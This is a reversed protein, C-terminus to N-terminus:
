ASLSHYSTGSSILFRVRHISFLAPSCRKDSRAQSVRSDVDSRKFHDVPANLYRFCTHPHSVTYQVARHTVQRNPCPYDVQVHVANRTLFEPHTIIHFPCCRTDKAELVRISTYVAALPFILRYERSQHDVVNGGNSQCSKSSVSLSVFTQLSTYTLAHTSSLRQHLDQGLPLSSFPQREMVVAAFVNRKGPKIRPLQYCRWYERM